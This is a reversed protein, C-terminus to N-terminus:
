FFIFFFLESPYKSSGKFEGGGIMGVVVVVVVVVAVAVVVVVVVVVVMRVLVKIGTSRDRHISLFIDKIYISQQLPLPRGYHGSFLHVLRGQFLEMSKMDVLKQEM